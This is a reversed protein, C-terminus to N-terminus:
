DGVLKRRSYQIDAVSCLESNKTWKLLKSGLWYKCSVLTICQYYAPVWDSSVLNKASGWRETSM